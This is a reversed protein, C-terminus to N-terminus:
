QCSPIADFSGRFSISELFTGEKGREQPDTGFGDTTGDAAAAVLVLALLTEFLSSEERREQPDTGFGDTTGDAAAAVLVLSLFLEFDSLGFELELLSFKFLSHKSTTV